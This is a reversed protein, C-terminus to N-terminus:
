SEWESRFFGRSNAVHGAEDYVSIRFYEARPSLPLTVTTAPSGKPRKVSAPSKSGCYLYVEAAPSCEVQVTRGEDGECVAIKRIAPGNSAYCNKEELAGIVDAYTLSDALIVTYFLFSDNNGNVNHNDDGAHCGIAMGRRMMTDYLAEGNELRNIMYSGTNYMELSFLGEYSLIREESEMSWFPHNYAVLYGNEKATRIFQNIYEVTYRRPEESGRRCLDGHHEPAIYKTYARNYCILTENSPDKAFLNLHIEPSFVDYAATESPRIYAEYGTLLLFIEDGLASHNKPNCHDTIALIDYGEARYRKVLEEPTLRGDSRTSHCHLNARFQKKEDSLLIKM